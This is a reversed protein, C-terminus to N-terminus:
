VPLSAEGLGALEAPQVPPMPQFAAEAVSRPMSAEGIVRGFRHGEYTAERLRRPSLADGVVYLYEIRGELQQQLEDVPLRMAAMVIADLGDILREEGTPGIVTASREGVQTLSNLTSVKVAAKQLRAAIMASGQYVTLNAAVQLNGTILEVQAGAAAAMEAIGAGTHLGEDDVILVRGTLEQGSELVDEPTHVFPKGSGPVPATWRGNEGTRDYRSGTALVVVAPKLDIVAAASAEVGTRVDVGAERLEREHWGRLTAIHECGPLMAWLAAGGGLRSRRELLTVQHGRLAAIRAAEAGAPGGGVVVV